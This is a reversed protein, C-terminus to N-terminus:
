RKGARGRAHLCLSAIAIVIGSALLLVGSFLVFDTLLMPM